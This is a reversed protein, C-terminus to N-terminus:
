QQYAFQKFRKLENILSNADTANPLVLKDFVYSYIIQGKAALIDKISYKSLEMLNKTANSPIIGDGSNLIRLEPGNEGVLSLGGAASLTGSAYHWKGSNPDFTMGSGSYDEEKEWHAEQQIKDAEERSILGNEYAHEADWWVQSWDKGGAGGSNLISEGVDSYDYGGGFSVGGAGGTGGGAIGGISSSGGSAGGLSSQYGANLMAQANALRQMLAEYEAVYTSLNDLRLQWNEGELQIGLEQELLLRDQEEQYHDVVSSWEEKYEEWGAIQEDISALAQDKLKELNEVEQRLAEEREFAELEAEAESIAEVNQVYQFRGDKYVLLREQKSAALNKQLEELQIQREIEDNQDELAQIKADWYDEEIQRQEQLAAIQEDIRDSMYSFLKEYIDKQDELSDIQSQMSEEWAEKEAKAKERAIDVRKEWYHEYDILGKAYWEDMWDLIRQYAAIENDAGWNDLDNKEDIYDESIELREDFMEKQIDIIEDHYNWWQEQLDRIYESEDDLGQSRFWEAQEYLTNQIEKQKKILEEESAGQKEMLFLEHELIEIREKFIDNQQELIDVSESSSTSGTTSGGLSFDINGLSASMAQAYAAVDSKLQELKRKTAESDVEESSLLIQNAAALALASATQEDYAGTLNDIGNKASEVKSEVDTTTKGFLENARQSAYAAVSEQAMAIALMKLQSEYDATSLKNLDIQGKENMLSRIYDPGLSLLKEWTEISIKGTSNYEEQANDLIEYNEKLAELEKSLDRTEEGASGASDATRALNEEGIIGIKELLTLAEEISNNLNDTEKVTDKFETNTNKVSDPIDEFIENWEALEAQTDALKSSAEIINNLVNSRTEAIRNYEEAEEPNSLDLEDMQKDLEQLASIQNKVFDIDEEVQYIDGPAYQLTFEKLQEQQLLKEQLEIQRELIDLNREDLETKNTKSNLEDYETKLDNLGNTLEEVKEKQKEYQSQMGGFISMLAVIATSVALLIPFTSKLAFGFAETATAAGGMAAQFAFLVNKFQTFLIPFINMAKTVTVLGFMATTLLTVQTIFTGVPTNLLDLFTKTLSLISKILKSDIVNNAFDEFTAAVASAKANLSEMYAQNEREASGASNLAYSTAIAAHEFNQMLAAFNQFQNTGAQNSAIFNQTNRDLTPWIEALQTFIEYSSLLQGNTDFLTIGLGEYTEKLTKGISSSEDTIQM